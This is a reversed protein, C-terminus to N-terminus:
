VTHFALILEPLLTDPDIRDSQHKFYCQWWRYFVETCAFSSTFPKPEFILKQRQARRLISRWVHEILPQRLDDLCKYLSSPKIQILGFQRAVHNPQYSYVGYPSGVTVRSSLFTPTLYAEWIANIDVEEKTSNTPFRATFWSPGHSRTTFPAMSPTFSTWGLFANYAVVFLDPSSRNGYQLMALGLGEISRNDYAKSLAPPLHVALKTRFTALLWLQFLWIPGPIILSSGPQFDKISSVAHNLSEYLSGLILKSLCIDRGEHLQIALTTFKKPIQISRSCFIYMSLWYTLFAIHEQDSVTTSSTDHHDIIFNGDAPRSFDFSIESSHTDPDFIQGVPKLGVLGAVDLLTPTLMGCKLHLSNTSPNWFHLAAIIMENHYKPGQRSLQILDFVGM